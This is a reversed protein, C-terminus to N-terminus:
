PAAGSGRGAAPPLDLDKPIGREGALRHANTLSRQWLPRQGLAAHLRLQLLACNFDQDAWRAVQGIVASAERLRGEAVLSTGHSIVVAAIDAPVGGQTALGLAREYEPQADASRNEATLQEAQALQAYLLGAPLSLSRTWDVLQVVRDAADQTRGIARLARIAVFWAALRDRTEATPDLAAMAALSLDIAAQPQGSDLEIRALENHAVAWVAKEKAPDATRAVQELLDMAEHRRGNADLALARNISLAHRIGPNELHDHIVWARESALLASKPDLLALHTGILASSTMALENLAGFREFRQAARELAPAASAYRDRTADLLGENAETRALALSDGALEFSVHALSFDALAADYRGQVQAAIGRGMYAQGLEHPDSQGELLSVAEVYAASAAGAHGLRIAVNGIGNLVKARLVPDSEASTQTLLHQLRQGAEEFKGARFDIKALQLRLEPSERLAPPAAQLLRRAGDLDDTLVAAEARQLLRIDSWQRVDAADPPPRKGLLALLRDAAMRGALLVDADHADARRIIGRDRLELHVSWGAPSWAASPLVAYRAGTADRVGEEARDRTASRVLAVVNDGPIVAQGGERLRSAVAEMLGLRVWSWETPATVDVPFVAASNAAVPVVPKDHAARRTFWLGAVIVIALIALLMMGRRVTWAPNRQGPPSADRVPASTTLDDDGTSLPAVWAYGFRPITRISNQETASDGIARRAKLITQGLLTDTIETKGWVTAVLEDRGVARDSHVILFALCDFVIPSLVLREGARRLERGSLDIRCDGFRYISPPM